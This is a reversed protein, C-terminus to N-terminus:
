KDTNNNDHDNNIEKIVRNTLVGQFINFLERVTSITEDYKAHDFYILGITTKLIQLIVM